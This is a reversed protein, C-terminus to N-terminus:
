PKVTSAYTIIYGRLDVISIKVVEIGSGTLAYDKLSIDFERVEAPKNSKWFM